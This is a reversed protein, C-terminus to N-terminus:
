NENIDEKAKKFEQISQGISKFLNPIKKYGFLILIIILIISLELIGANM